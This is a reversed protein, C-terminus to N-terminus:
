RPGSDNWEGQNGQGVLVEGRERIMGNVKIEKDKTELVEGRERIMGSVKIEKDKTELVEGREGM